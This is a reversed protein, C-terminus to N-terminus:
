IHRCIRKKRNGIGPYIRSKQDTHCIIGTHVTGLIFLIGSMIRLRGFNRHQLRGIRRLRKGKYLKGILKGFFIIRCNKHLHTSTDTMRLTDYLRSLPHKRLLFFIFFIRSFINHHRAIRLFAMRLHLCARFRQRGPSLRRIDIPNFFSAILRVADNSRGSTILIHLLCKSICIRNQLQSHDPRHRLLLNFIKRSGDVLKHNHFFQITKDFCM